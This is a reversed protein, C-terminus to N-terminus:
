EKAESDTDSPTHSRERPPRRNIRQKKKKKEEKEFRYALSVALTSPGFEGSDLRQKFEIDSETESSPPTPPEPVPSPPSPDFISHHPTEERPL